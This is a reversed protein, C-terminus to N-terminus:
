AEILDFPEKPPQQTALGQIVKAITKNFARWLPTPSRTASEWIPLWGSPPKVGSSVIRLNTTTILLLDWEPKSPSAKLGPSSPVDDTIKLIDENLSWFARRKSVKVLYEIIIQPDHLQPLLGMLDVVNAARRMALGSIFDADRSIAGGLLKVGSSVRLVRAVEESDGIVTGDDLYWAHLLLKCSDKIKHLLPHLILAF